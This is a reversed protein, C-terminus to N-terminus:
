LILTTDLHWINSHAASHPFEPDKMANCHVSPRKTNKKSFTVQVELLLIKIMGKNKLM